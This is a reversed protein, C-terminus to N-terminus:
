VWAQSSLVSKEYLRMQLEFVRYMVSKKAFEIDCETPKRDLNKSMIEIFIKNMKIIIDNIYNFNRNNNNRIAIDRAHICSLYRHIYHENDIYELIEMSALSLDYINLKCYKAKSTIFLDSYTSTNISQM